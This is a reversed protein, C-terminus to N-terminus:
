FRLRGFAVLSLLAERYTSLKHSNEEEPFRRKPAPSSKVRVSSNKSPNMM